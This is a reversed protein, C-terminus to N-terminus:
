VLCVLCACLRVLLCVLVCSRLCALVCARLVGLVCARLCAIVFSRLCAPVCACLCAVGVWASLELMHLGQACRLSQPVECILLAIMEAVSVDVLAVVVVCAVRAGEAGAFM